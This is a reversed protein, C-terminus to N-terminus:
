FKTGRCLEMRNRKTPNDEPCFRCCFLKRWRFSFYRFLPPHLFPTEQLPYSLFDTEEEWHDAPRM